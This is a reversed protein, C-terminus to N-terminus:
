DEVGSVETGTWGRPDGSGGLRVHRALTKRHCVVTMGREYWLGGLSEAVADPCDRTGRTARKLKGWTGDM